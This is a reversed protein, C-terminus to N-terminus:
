DMEALSHLGRTGLTYNIGYSCPCVPLAGGGRDPCSHVARKYTQGMRDGAALIIGGVRILGRVEGSLAISFNIAPM